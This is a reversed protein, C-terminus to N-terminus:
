NSCNRNRKFARACGNENSYGRPHKEYNLENTLNGKCLGVGEMECGIREDRPAQKDDICKCYICKGRFCSLM